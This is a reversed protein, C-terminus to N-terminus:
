PYLPKLSAQRHQATHFVEAHQDSGPFTKAEWDTSEVEWGTKQRNFATHYNGESIAMNLPDASQKLLDRHM